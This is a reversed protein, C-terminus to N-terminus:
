AVLASPLSPNEVVSEVPLVYIPIQVSLVSISGIVAEDYVHLRIFPASPVSPFLAEIEAVLFLSPLTVMVVVSGDVPLVVVVTSLPASPVLM